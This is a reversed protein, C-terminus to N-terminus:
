VPFCIVCANLNKKLNHTLNLLAIQKEVIFFVPM